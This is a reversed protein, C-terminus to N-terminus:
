ARVRLNAQNVRGGTANMRPIANTARDRRKTGVFCCSGSITMPNVDIRTWRTFSAMVPRPRRWHGM